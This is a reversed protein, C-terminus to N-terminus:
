TFVFCIIMKMKDLYEGKLTAYYYYGNQLYMQHIAHHQTVGVHTFPFVDNGGAITGKFFM